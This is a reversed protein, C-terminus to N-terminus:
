ESLYETIQFKEFDFVFNYDGYQYTIVKEGYNQTVWPNSQILSDELVYNVVNGNITEKTNQSDGGYQMSMTDGKANTYSIATANTYDYNVNDFLSDCIGKVNQLEMQPTSGEVDDADFVECVFWGKTIGDTHIKSDEIVMEFSISLQYAIIIQGYHVYVRGKSSEDIIATYTDPQYILLGPYEHNNPIDFVGIVTNGYQIVQEYATTGFQTHRDNDINSVHQISFTSTDSPNEETWRVGWNLPQRYFANYVNTYTSRSTEIQTRTSFISYDEYMQTKMYNIFTADWKEKEFYHVETHLYDESRDESIANAMWNPRYTSYIMYGLSRAEMFDMEAKTPYQDTSGFYYWLLMGTQGTYNQAAYPMYTRETAACMHGELWIPALTFMANEMVMYAQHGLSLDDSCLYIALLPLFHCVFYTDSNNEYVGTIPYKELLMRITKEATPDDTQVADYGYYETVVEGPFYQNALYTGVAAMFAHNPTNPQNGYAQSLTLATKATALMEATYYKRFLGYHMAAQLIAFCDTLDGEANTRNKEFSAWCKKSAELAETLYSQKKTQEYLYFKVATSGFGTKTGYDNSRYELFYKILYDNRDYFESDIEEKYEELDFHNEEPILKFEYYALYTSHGYTLRVSLLIFQKGEDSTPLNIIM